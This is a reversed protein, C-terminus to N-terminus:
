FVPLYPTQVATTTATQMSPPRGDVRSSSLRLDTTAGLPLLKRRRSSGRSLFDFGRNRIQETLYRTILIIVTAIESSLLLKEQQDNEKQARLRAETSRHTELFARRQSRDTLYKIYVGTFNVGAFLLIM